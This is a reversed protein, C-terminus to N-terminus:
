APEFMKVLLDWDKRFYSRLYGRIANDILGQRDTEYEKWDDWYFDVADEAAAILKSDFPSPMKKPSGADKHIAKNM